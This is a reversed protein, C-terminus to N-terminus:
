RPLALRIPGRWTGDAAIVVGRQRIELRGDRALTRATDRIMPMLGRWGAPSLMRAVESPCITAAADRAQLLSFIAAATRDEAESM